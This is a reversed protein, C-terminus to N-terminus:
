KIEAVIAAVANLAEAAKEPQKGGAMASEARGGGSGGAIKAVERIIRGANANNAVADKGCAAAFNLKGDTVGALVVIASPEAQKISDTLLRLTNATEGKILSTIVKFKGIEKATDLLGSLRMGAIKSNLTEIAHNKERIEDTLAKAREDIEAPSTKLVLATEKIKEEDSNILELLNYGTVGEIRRVGAAVSSESVIHFLGINATNKVHTGGCFELSAPANETGMRVVRVKDGYKEGFLAMAGTKRAEEIPMVTTNVELGSLITENVGHEVKQIEEPTLAAFHTFDFRVRQSNVLQGAQQVHSGLVRRLSAQLLHAASHNRTISQRTTIDVKATVSDGDSITGSIVEGIHVFRGTPSKKCDHIRVVAKDSTIVGCDGIQGGSEAYFPTKDLLLSVKEGSGAFGTREGNAIIACVKAECESKEYGVFTTKPTDEDKTDELAGDGAAARAARARDRQEDMLKDFGDKDVEIGKEALIESTLDLPFGYTDYLKFADEGCMIKAGAATIKDTMATLLSLGQDITASFREEEMSIVRKIFDRKEVLEPYHTENEKIVTDAIEALFPREIGLLRGHRAARRLLRRFVYGRGVNSPLIGDAAMFVTSRIHDTIVRLSVDAKANEGYKVGAVRSVHNMINKITDVEFLNNVDQLIVALRELGMGTDINPKPLPTYNGKGDSDFQQFVLNWFEVYRDCDCGVKCDKKGCGYKEGRDFYIESCPGCPLSGHEWFNDERGFRVVHSPDVGVEKTWIDYAEDDSEFITVWLRDVPMELVKTCFEWAFATAEHKFYDGFSFNGLMEFFTGHRATKGVREIDPTRICKQCTCVRKAPPKEHQLFFKKMPAMGANILLLTNDGQPVLPFSPLRKHGKSEFFSLYKERLENLGTWEM